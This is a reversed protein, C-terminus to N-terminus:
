ALRDIIGKAIKAAIRQAGGPTHNEIFTTISADLQEGKLHGWRKRAHQVAEDAKQRNHERSGPRGEIQTGLIEGVYKDVMQWFAYAQDGVCEWTDTEGLERRRRASRLSVRYEEAFLDDGFM